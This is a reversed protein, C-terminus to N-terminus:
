YRTAVIEPGIFFLSKTGIRPINEYRLYVVGESVEGDYM